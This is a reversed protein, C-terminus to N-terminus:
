TEIPCRQHRYLPKGTRSFHELHRKYRTPGVLLLTYCRSCPIRMPKPRARRKYGPALKLSAPAYRKGNGGLKLHMRQWEPGHPKRGAIPPMLLHALEHTVTDHFDQQFNEPDDYFAKSLVIERKRYVAKGTARTMRTSLRITVKRITDAFEPVLKECGVLINRAERQLDM